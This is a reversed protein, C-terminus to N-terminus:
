IHSWLNNIAEAGQPLIPKLLQNNWYAVFNININVRCRTDTCTSGTHEMYSPFIVMSNAESFVKDGDKFETYGNNTNCYFIATYSLPVSVDCHMGHTVIENQGPINNAKVRLFTHPQLVAFIPFLMNWLEPGTVINSGEHFKHVFQIQYKEETNSQHSHVVHNQYFWPFKDSMIIDTLQKFHEDSLVNKITIKNNKIQQEM